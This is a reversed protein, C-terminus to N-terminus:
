SSSRTGSSRRSRTPWGALALFLLALPLDDGVLGFAAIGAGWVAVSWLVAAGQRRVHKVWGTTLAGLFAGVAPASFLLGVIEPGAHFQRLALIPFLARPM